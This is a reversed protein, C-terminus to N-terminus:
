WKELRRLIEPQLKEEAPICLYLGDPRMAAIFPELENLQVDVVVGKGAAQVRRIVHLWQLIPLDAGVGQVWQIAQIEPLSLIHDLHRLVGAGDVHFINHTMHRVETQLTPFYFECFTETSILASFDCSPIHMKGRSPIGMWTVSLQGHSKLVEDYHDFIPFFSENALRVATQVRDPEDMIDLCLQQPDRWDAVCDLSGHLDTYGVMFNGACKELAVRTMNEIGRFYESDRSFNLKELDEWDHICHRIWSTVEGFELEAGHFAAYVNPGLNPWFVPFTEGHFTRGRISELFADVQYEADFWRSKQDPWRGALSHGGLYEANHESFRVPPRDLTEHNFWAEIRSLAEEFDPKGELEM